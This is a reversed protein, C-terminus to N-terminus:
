NRLVPLTIIFTAGHNEEGEASEVTMNGGHNQVIGYAIGLGLGTGKGEKKTTFFPDFVKGMNERPIGVGNDAFRIEIQSGELLVSITLRGNWGKERLEDASLYGRHENMSDRANGIINLFVQALQDPDGMIEVPNPDFRRILEVGESKMEYEVLSITKEILERVNVVVNEPKRERAFERLNDIIKSSRRVQEMIVNYTYDREEKVEDGMQLLQVTTSIINLPNKLEHAVGASLRGMSALKESRILQSRTQEIDVLAKKLKENTDTLRSEWEKQATIDRIIASAGWGDRMKVPAISLEVPFESGDKRKATISRTKNLVAGEGTKLFKSLGIYAQEMYKQPVIYDHMDRGVMEKESYGFVREASENWMYVKGKEDICVIPDNATEMIARHRAESERLANEAQKRETIDRISAYWMSAIRETDETPSIELFAWITAGDKRKMRLDCAQPMGSELLRKRLLYYIDQDEPAIVRTFPQNVLHDRPMGLLNAATLNSELVLDQESITLYGIPAFEYLNLYKIKASELKEQTQLLEENQALLETQTVHLVEEARKRETIDDTIAAFYGPQPCYTSMSLWLNLIDFNIMFETGEGTLAVRGYTEFLNPKFDKIAPFVETARKGEVANKEIGMVRGFADNVELYIWDVPQNNEDFIMKCYAFGNRMNTFLARYKSESQILKNEYDKRKTIDRITCQILDSHDVLYVVSTFEVEIRQGDFTEMPLNDYRLYKEIRLKTFNDENAIIDKLFGLEWIKKGIFEEHSYGLLEIMFPNVDLIMGTKGELIMIGDKASEFLLRYRAESLILADEAKRQQTIDFNVGIITVPKNDKGAIIELRDRVIREEGDPRIIRLDFEAQSQGGSLIESFYEEITKRDELHLAEMFKDFTPEFAGPEFGYIRYLEDSWEQKGTQIDMKWNGLHAIRQANALALKSERLAENSAMQLKWLRVIQWSLFTTGLLFITTMMSVKALERWWEALYEETALGFIIHLPFDEVKHYSYAREINDLISKTTYTGPEPHTKILRQIHPSLASKGILNGIGGEPEPYRTVVNLDADLLAVAGEKGMYIGSFAEALSELQFNVFVVGGFSGDPLNFRRSIPIAWKRDVRTLIPPAIVMGANPNDRQRIFYIRDANNIPPILKVGTDYRLTGDASCVRFSLVEPLRAKHRALFQNITKEDIGGGAIQREIEDAAGLLELDIRRMVGGIHEELVHSLNQTTQGADKHAEARSNYLWYGALSIVFLNILLVGLAWLRIFTSSFIGQDAPVPQVTM